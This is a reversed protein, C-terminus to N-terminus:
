LLSVVGFSGGNDPNGTFTPLLLQSSQSRFPYTLHTCTKVAEKTATIRTLNAHSECKKVKLSCEVYDVEGKEKMSKKWSMEEKKKNQYYIEPYLQAM